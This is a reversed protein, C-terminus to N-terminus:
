LGEFLPGELATIDDMPVAAGSDMLLRRAAADIKKVTGTLTVHSGGPKRGDKVFYTVSVAPKQRLSANLLALRESLAQQAYEDQARREDTLRATERVVGDYGTLAAFPSFQAARDAMSMRPRTPSVHHPLRIIDDYRESM